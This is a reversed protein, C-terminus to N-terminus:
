RLWEFTGLAHASATQPMTSKGTGRPMEIMLHYLRGSHAAVINWKTAKARADYAKILRAPAGALQFASVQAGPYRTKLSQALQALEAEGQGPQSTGYDTQCWVCFAQKAALVQDQGPRASRMITWTKPVAFRYDGSPHIYWKLTPKPPQPPPPPKRPELPIEEGPEPAVEDLHKDPAVAPAPTQSVTVTVPGSVPPAAPAEGRPQYRYHWICYGYSFRVSLFLDTFLSNPPELVKWEITKSQPPQKYRVDVSEYVGTKAVGNLTQTAADHSGWSGVISAGATLGGTPPDTGTVSSGADSVTVTMLKVVQGVPLTAPPDTWTASFKRVVAYDRVSCRQEIQASSAGISYGFYTEGIDPTGHAKQEDVQWKRVFVWGPGSVGTAPGTTASSAPKTAPSTGPPKGAGPKFDIHFVNQTPYYCSTGGAPDDIYRVTLTYTLPQTISGPDPRYFEVRFPAQGANVAKTIDGKLAALDVDGEIKKGACTVVLRFRTDPGDVRFSLKGRTVPAEWRKFAQSRANPNRMANVDGELEIAKLNLSVRRAEAANSGPDPKLTDSKVDQEKLLVHATVERPVMVWEPVHVPQQRAIKGAADMVLDAKVGGQMYLAIAEEYTPLRVGTAQEYEQRIGFQLPAVIVALGYAKVWAFHAETWVQRELEYNLAMGRQNVLEAQRQGAARVAPEFKTGLEKLWNVSHEAFGEIYVHQYDRDGTMNLYKLWPATTTITHPAGYLLGHQMEHWCTDARDMPFYTAVADAPFRFDGGDVKQPAMGPQNRWLFRAPGTGTPAGLIAQYRAAPPVAPDGLVAIQGVAYPQLCTRYTEIRSLFWQHTRTQVPLQAQAAEALAAYGQMETLTVPGTPPPAQATATACVFSLAVQWVARRGSNVRREM